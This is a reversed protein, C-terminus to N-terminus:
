KSSLVRGSSTDIHIVYFAEADEQSIMAVVGTGPVFFYYAADKTHAPGVKGECDFRFLDAAFTGAPLTVEYTGVFTYSGNLSGSYRQDTPDDLYNVSVQQTFSRTEGPKMGKLVFPNAPTAVVVVGEGSDTVAPMTLDGEPTQQLFGALSPSFEMRWAVNGGPRQGKAVQLTQSQGSYPGSTVKYTLAKPQLPFYVAPDGVPKSPLARGVVGAGLHATIEQQDKAPLPLVADDARVSGGATLSVMLWARFLGSARRM